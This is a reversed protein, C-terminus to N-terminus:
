RILYYFLNFGEVEEQSMSDRMEDAVESGQSYGADYIDLYRVVEVVTAETM